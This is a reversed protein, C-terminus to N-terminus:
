EMRSRKRQQIHDESIEPRDAYTTGMSRNAVPISKEILSGMSTVEHWRFVPGNPTDVVVGGDLTPVSPLTSGSLAPDTRQIDGPNMDWAKRQSSNLFYSNDSLPGCQENFTKSALPYLEIKPPAIPAQPYPRSLYNDYSPYSTNTLSMENQQSIIGSSSKNHLYHSNPTYNPRMAAPLNMLGQDVPYSSQSAKLKHVWSRDAPVTRQKKVDKDVTEQGSGEDSLEVSQSSVSSSCDTCEESPTSKSTSPTVKQLEAKGEDNATKFFNLLLASEEQVESDNSSNRNHAMVDKPTARSTCSQCPCNEPSFPSNSYLVKNSNGDDTHPFTPYSDHYAKPQPPKWDPFSSSISTHMSGNLYLGSNDPLAQRYGGGSPYTYYSSSTSYPVGRSFHPLVDPKFEGAASKFLEEFRNIDAEVNDIAKSNEDSPEAPQFVLRGVCVNGAYKKSIRMPDCNLKASLFSRLTTGRPLRLLGSKFSSILKETYAEEDKTWKGKRTQYQNGMAPAEGYFDDYHPASVSWTPNIM